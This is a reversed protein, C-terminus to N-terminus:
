DKKRQKIHRMWGNPKENISLFGDYGIGHFHYVDIYDIDLKKLQEELIKRYDGHKKILHGPSKTSVYVKDRIGKLAKGLVIESQGDHYFYATDYYNVGLEYARHIMKITKDEDVVEVDNLKITPLRMCGFGLRSIEIGTNGFKRYKM